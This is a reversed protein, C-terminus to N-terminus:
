EGALERRLEALEDEVQRGRETNLDSQDPKVSAGGGANAVQSKRRVADALRGELARMMTALHNRTNTAAEHQQELGALVDQSEKKRTVADRADNENGDLLAAKAREHWKAVEGRHFEIEGDLRKVSSEATRVSRQAGAIGERMEAVIEDLAVSPNSEENLIQTLNCTVIDTLRSFYAM